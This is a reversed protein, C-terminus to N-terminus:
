LFDIRVKNISEPIKWIQCSNALTHMLCQSLQIILCDKLMQLDVEWHYISTIKKRM